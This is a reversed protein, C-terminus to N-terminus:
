GVKKFVVKLIDHLMSIEKIKRNRLFSVLKSLEREFAQNKPKHEDFDFFTKVPVNLAEAIKEVTKLSPFAVGREMRSITEVSVNIKEALRAQTLVKSLRIETIKAGIRKEIDSSM